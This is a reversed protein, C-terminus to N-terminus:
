AVRRPRRRPPRGLRVGAVGAVLSGAVALAAGVLPRLSAELGLERIAVLGSEIRWLTLGVSGLALLGLLPAVLRAGALARPTSRRLVVSVLGFAVLPLLWLNMATETAIAFGSSRRVDGNAAVEVFPAAFAALWLAAAALAIGRGFRLDHPPLADDPEPVPRGRLAALRAIPVLALDHEPCREEGEFSEECFPCFLPPGASM